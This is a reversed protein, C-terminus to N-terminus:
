RAPEAWSKDEKKREVKRMAKFKKLQEKTLVKEYSKHMEQKLVKRREKKEEDSVNLVRIARMKRMQEKHIAKMERRQTDSLDLEKAMHEMHRGKGDFSKHATDKRNKRFAQVKEMQEATLVEKLDNDIEKKLAQRSERKSAKDAESDHMEMMRDAYKMHIAYVEDRQEQTLSLEKAMRDVKKDVMNQANKEQAFLASGGIFLVLAFARLKKKM